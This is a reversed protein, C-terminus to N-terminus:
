AGRGGLVAVANEGVEPTGSMAYETVKVDGGCYIAFEDIAAAIDRRAVAFMTAYVLRAHIVSQVDDFAKDCSLHLLKESSPGREGGVPNAALEIVCVDD